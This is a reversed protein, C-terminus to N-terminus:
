PNDPTKPLKDVAWRDRQRMIEITGMYAYGQTDRSGIEYLRVPFIYRTPSLRQGPGIEFAEHHPNGLGAMYVKFWSEGKKKKLRRGLRDSVLEMGAPTDRTAWAFVFLNAVQLAALYDRDITPTLPAPPVPAPPPAAVAPSVILVLALSAIRLAKM